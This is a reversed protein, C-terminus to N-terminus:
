ASMQKKIKIMELCAKAARGGVNKQSSDARFNAQERNETTIVGYGIAANHKLALENLGRASEGCVYDYHTTEGRIVCGLGIYGAYKGSAIAMSIAAPIEFTGPVAIKEYGYDSKEIESIAAEALRDAIDDYFRAEIILIKEMTHM